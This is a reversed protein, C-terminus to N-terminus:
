GPASAAAVSCGCDCSAASSCDGGDAVAAAATTAEGVGESGSDSDADGEDGEGAGAARWAADCRREVRAACIVAAHWTVLGSGSAPVSPFTNTCTMSDTVAPLCCREADCRVGVARCCTVDLDIRDPVSERKRKSNHHTHTHTQSQLPAPLNLQLGTSRM